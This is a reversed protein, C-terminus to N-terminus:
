DSPNGSRHKGALSKTEKAPSCKSDSSMNRCSLEHMALANCSHVNCVTVDYRLDQVTFFLISVSADCFPRGPRRPLVNQACQRTIVTPPLRPRAPDREYSMLRTSRADVKATWPCDWVGFVFQPYSLKNHGASFASTLRFIVTTTTCM